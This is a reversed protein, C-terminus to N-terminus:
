KVFRFKAFPYGYTLRYTSRQGDLYGGNQSKSRRLHNPWRGCATAATYICQRSVNEQTKLVNLAKNILNM